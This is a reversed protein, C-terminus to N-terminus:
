VVFLLILAVKLKTVTSVGVARQWRERGFRAKQITVEATCARGDIATIRFYPHLKNSHVGISIFRVHQCASRVLTNVERPFLHGSSDVRHGGDADPVTSCVRCHGFHGDSETLTASIAPRRRTWWLRRIVRVLVNKHTCAPHKHFNFIPTSSIEM